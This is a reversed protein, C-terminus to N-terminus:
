PQQIRYGASFYGYMHGRWIRKLNPQETLNAVMPEGLGKVQEGFYKYYEALAQDPSAAIVHLHAAYSHRLGSVIFKHLEGM